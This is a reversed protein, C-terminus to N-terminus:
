GRVTFSASVHQVGDADKTVPCIPFGAQVASERQAASSLRADDEFLFESVLVNRENRFVEVYANGLRVAWKSPTTRLTGVVSGVALAIVWAALATALTWGLGVFLYNLWTGSGDAATQFYISWEWNYRM